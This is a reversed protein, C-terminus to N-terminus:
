RNKRRRRGLHMIPSKPATISDDDGDNEFAGRGPVVIAWERFRIENWDKV